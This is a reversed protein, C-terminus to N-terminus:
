SRTEKLFREPTLARIGPFHLEARLLDRLNRSIIHSAHGAVALEILHNDGEDALNPHWGFYIPTWRCSALFIDLLEEREEASLRSKRFPAARGLVDEYEALLTTGVLPVHTGRICDGVIASSAGMGLCAGVFVNTDIVILVRRM